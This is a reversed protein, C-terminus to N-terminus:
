PICDIRLAPPPRHGAPDRLQRVAPEAAEDPRAVPQADEKVSAIKFAGLVVVHFNAPGDAELQNVISHAAGAGRTYAHGARRLSRSPRRRKSARLACSTPWGTTGRM